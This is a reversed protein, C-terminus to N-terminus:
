FTTSFLMRLSKLENRWSTVAPTQQGKHFLLSVSKVTISLIFRLKDYKEYDQFSKKLM